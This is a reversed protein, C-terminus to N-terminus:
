VTRFTVSIRRQRIIPGDSKRSAISHMWKYRSDGHMIYFSNPEVYKSYSKDFKTFNICCGGGLTFCAITPGFKLSDIHPSIGQGPLYENIICQNYKVTKNILSSAKDEALTKMENLEEPINETPVAAVRSNYDYIFGYQQVRRSNKHSTIPKWEKTDLFNIVNQYDREENNYYLNM